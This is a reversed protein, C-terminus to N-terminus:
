EDAPADVRNRQSAFIGLAVGGIALLPIMRKVGVIRVLQLGMALVAPDSFITSAASKASKRELRHKEQNKKVAYCVAALAAIVLFAAGAALCAVVAGERELVFIFAAAVLFGAAIFMAVGVAGALSSLRNAIGARTQIDDVLRQFM